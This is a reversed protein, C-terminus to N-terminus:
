ICTTMTQLHLELLYYLGGMSNLKQIDTVKNATNQGYVTVDLAQTSPGSVMCYYLREFSVSKLARCVSYLCTICFAHLLADSSIM